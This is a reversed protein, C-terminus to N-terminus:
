KETVNIWLQVDRYANSITPNSPDSSRYLLFVLRLRDGEMTPNIQYTRHWTQNHELTPTKFQGLRTESQIVSSDNRIRVDQLKIVVSYTMSQQEHNGVSVVIPNQEQRTFNEPYNRAVLEGNDTETTLYIETYPDGPDPGVVAYGVGAVVLLLTGILLINLATDVGTEPELFERGVISVWEQVPVDFREDEPLKQRRHAALALMTATFLTLSFMVSTLEIGWRTFNLILGVSQVIIISLTFSLVLRELISEQGDAHDSPPDSSSDLGWHTNSGPFLVAVVAYGPLFLVLPLGFIVRLPTYNVVPFFVFFQALGLFIAIAALDVPLQRVPQPLVSRWCRNNEEQEM